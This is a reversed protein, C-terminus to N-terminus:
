YATHTSSATHTSCTTHPHHLVVTIDLTPITSPRLHTAALYAKHRKEAEEVLKSIDCADTKVLTSRVEPILCMHWIDKPLDIQKHYETDENIDPLQLLTFIEYSIQSPTRYSMPQQPFDLIRQARVSSTQCFKKLLMAKLDEYKIEAPPIDLWPSIHQFVSEPLVKM